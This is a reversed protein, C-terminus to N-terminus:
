DVTVRTASLTGKVEQLLNGRPDFVKFDFTGSYTKGDSAVTNNEDQTLTAAISGDAPNFMVGVHHLKVSLHNVSKWVGFCINGGIPPL